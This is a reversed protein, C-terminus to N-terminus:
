ASTPTPLQREDAFAERAMACLLLADTWRDSEERWQGDSGRVQRAYNMRYLQDGFVIEAPLLEPAFVLVDGPGAEERFGECCAQWIRRFRGVFAQDERGAPSVQVAGGDGIRGHILRVRSLVPGILTMVADFDGSGLDYAVFWHSFDGTFRLEPLAAVLDVTRRIDQTITRRHTELLLPHGVRAQVELLREALRLAEADNELGTGLMVTTAQLGAAQHARAITELREATPLMAAGTSALGAARVAQMDLPLISQVGEYGAARIAEFQGAEDLGVPGASFEPLGWLTGLALDLRLRPPAAGGDNVLLRM